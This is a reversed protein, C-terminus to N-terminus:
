EFFVNIRGEGETPLSDGKLSILSPTKGPKYVRKLYDLIGIMRRM